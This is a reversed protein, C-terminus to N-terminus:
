HCGGSSGYGVSAYTCVIFTDRPLLRALRSRTAAAAPHACRCGGLTNFVYLAAVNSIYFGPALTHVINRTIDDFHTCLSELAFFPWCSHPAHLRNVFWLQLDITNPAICPISISFAWGGDHSLYASETVGGIGVGKPNSNRVSKRITGLKHCQEVTESFRDLCGGDNRLTLFYRINSDDGNPTHSHIVL